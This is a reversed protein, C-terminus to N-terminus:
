SIRRIYSNWDEGSKVLGIAKWFEFHQKLIEPVNKKNNVIAKSVLKEISAALEKTETDTMGAPDGYNAEIECLIAIRDEPEVGFTQESVASCLIRLPEYGGSPDSAYDIAHRVAEIPKGVGLWASVCELVENDNSSSGNGSCRSRISDSFLGEIHAAAKKVQRPITVHYVSEGRPRYDGRYSLFNHSGCLHIREDVIVDKSHQNGLHEVHVAPLGEPTHIDKLKNILQKSPPNDERGEEKEIGWGLLVFVRNKAYAAFKDILEQDVARDNMWPSVILIRQKAKQLTELYIPRIDEDRLLKATGDQKKRAVGAQQQLLETKTLRKVTPGRDEEEPRDEKVRVFLKEAIEPEIQMFDPYQVTKSEVRENLSKEAKQIASADSLPYSASRAMITVGDPQHADKIVFVNWISEAVPLIKVEAVKTLYCENAPDEITTESREAAELLTTKNIGDRLERYEPEEIARPIGPMPHMKDAPVGRPPSTSTDQVLYSGIIQEFVVTKQEVEPPQLMTAKEFFAAGAPTARLHGTGDGPGELAGVDLGRLKRVVDDVFSREVRLMDALEQCTITPKCEVAARLVFEEMLTIHRPRRLEYSVRFCAAPAVFSRASLVERQGPLEEELKSADKKLHPEILNSTQFM